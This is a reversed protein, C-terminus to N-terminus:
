QPPRQPTIKVVNARCTRIGQCVTPALNKDFCVEIATLYNNGCSLAISGAPFGLNIRSFADIVAAPPETTQQITNTFAAPIKVEGYAKRVLGFYSDADYPTCTGHTQWEHLALSRTPMLGTWVQDATPGPRNGCHEPYSGDNNQPWLGHVVFGPHTACEPSGPHTVCFEPSWSLNLLYFDYPQGSGSPAPLEVARPQPNPSQTDPASASNCASLMLCLALSAACRFLTPHNM